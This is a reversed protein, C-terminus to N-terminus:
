KPTEKRTKARHRQKPRLAEPISIAIWDRYAGRVRQPAFVINKSAMDLVAAHLATASLVDCTGPYVWERSESVGPSVLQSAILRWRRPEELIDSAVSVTDPHDPIPTPPWATTEM